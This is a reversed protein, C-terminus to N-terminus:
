GNVSAPVTVSDRIRFVLGDPTEFRTRTILQQPVDQRNDIIITGQAAQSVTETGESPVSVTALKEITLVEFPLDGEPSTAIFEGTVTTQNETATVTVEAGSFFFLAVASLAVIGLAILATGVP